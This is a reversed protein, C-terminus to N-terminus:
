PSRVKVFRKWQLPLPKRKSTGGHLLRRQNRSADVLPNDTASNLETTVQNNALFLDELAPGMWQSATRISYRDQRLFSEKSTQGRDILKSGNLMSYINRSSEVQGWHPRIAAAFPDFSEDTGHLAEVSM